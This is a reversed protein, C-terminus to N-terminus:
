TYQYDKGKITTYYGMKHIFIISKDIKRDISMDTIEQEQRNYIFYSHVNMSIDKTYMLVRKEQIYAYPHSQQTM